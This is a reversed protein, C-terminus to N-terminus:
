SALRQFSAKALGKLWDNQRVAIDAMHSTIHHSTSAKVLSDNIQSALVNNGHQHLSQVLEGIRAVDQSSQIGHAAAQQANQLLHADIGSTNSSALMQQLHQAPDVPVTIATSASATAAHHAVTGLGHHANQAAERIASTAAQHAPTFHAAVLGFAGGLSASILINKLTFTEHAAAAFALKLGEKTWGNQKIAKYLNNGFSGAVGAVAGVLLPSAIAPVTLVTAAVAFLSKVAIGSGIGAIISGRNNNVFKAVKLAHTGVIAAGSLLNQKLINPRTLQTPTPDNAPEFYRDAFGLLLEDQALVFDAEEIALANNGNFPINLAMGRTPSTHTDVDVGYPGIRRINPNYPPVETATPLAKYAGDVVEAVSIPRGIGSGTVPADIGEVPDIEHGTYVTATDSAAPRSRNFWRRRTTGSPGSDNPTPAEPLPPLNGGDGPEQFNRVMGIVTAAGIAVAVIATGTAIEIKHWFSANAAAANAKNAVDEAAQQNRAVQAAAAADALQQDHAARAAAETATPAKAVKQQQAKDVSTGKALQQKPKRRANTAAAGTKVTKKKAGETTNDAALETGKAIPAKTQVAPAAATAAPVAAPASSSLSAIVAVADATFKGKAVPVPSPAPAADPAPEPAAVAPAPQPTQEAPAPIVQASTSLQQVALESAPASAIQVPATAPVDAAQVAPAPEPAPIPAPAAVPEAAPTPEPVPAAAAVAAPAVQPAPAAQQQALQNAGVILAAIHAPLEQEASQVGTVVEPAFEHTQRGSITTGKVSGDVNFFETSQRGNADFTVRRPQGNLYTEMSVILVMADSSYAKHGDATETRDYEFQQAGNASTHVKYFNQLKGDAAPISFKGSVRVVPNQAPAAAAVQEAPASVPAPAAQEAAPASQEPTATPVTAPASSAVAAPATATPADQAVPAASAGEQAPTAAATETAPSSDQDASVIIRAIVDASNPDPKKTLGPINGVVIPTGDQAIAIGPQIDGHPIVQINQLIQTAVEVPVAHNTSARMSGLVYYFPMNDLGPVSYGLVDSVQASEDETMKCVVLTDVDGHAKKDEAQITGRIIMHPLEGQECAKSLKFQWSPTKNISPVAYTAGAELSTLLAPAVAANAVPVSQDVDAAKVYGPITLASVVGAFATLKKSLSLAQM